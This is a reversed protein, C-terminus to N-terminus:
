VIEENLVVWDTAIFIDSNTFSIDATSSITLQFTVINFYLIPVYLQPNVQNTYPAYYEQRTLQAIVGDELTISPTPLSLNTLLTSLLDM